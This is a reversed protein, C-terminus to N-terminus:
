HLTPMLLQNAAVMAGGRTDSKFVSYVIAGIAEGRVICRDTYRGAVLETCRLGGVTLDSGVRVNGLQKFLPSQRCVLTLGFYTVRCGSGFHGIVM